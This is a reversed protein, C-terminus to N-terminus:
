DDKNPDLAACATGTMLPLTGRAARRAGDSASAAARAPPVQQHVPAPTSRPAATM